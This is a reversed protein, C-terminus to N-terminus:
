KLGLLFNRMYPMVFPFLFSFPKMSRRFTKGVLHTGSAIETLQGLLGVTKQIKKRRFAEFENERNQGLLNAFIYGDEICLNMGKGGLPSHLHAADGLLHINGCSFRSAIKESITFNSEWHIKGVKTGKPLQNLMDKANGGIRWIGDRIHLMFMVGNSSFRYHGEKHSIPTELEIDYLTYPSQHVWGELEIGLEQRIKSNNGDAGIVIGNTQLQFSSEQGIHRLDLKLNSKQDTIRILEINREIEVGLENLYDELIQETEHQPQILMFPYPHTVKSFHNKYILEDNYWFNMCSLKWGNALFRKTIGSKEFLQLTIPNIGLAKTRKRRETKEFIRPQYGLSHLFIGTSLGTTGAGIITIEKELKSPQLPSTHISM